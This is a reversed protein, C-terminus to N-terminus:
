GEIAAMAEAKRAAITEARKAVMAAKEEETKAAMTASFKVAIEAKEADTRRAHVESLKAAIEAKEADTRRAHAEKVSISKEERRRERVSADGDLKTVWKVIAAVRFKNGEPFAENFARTLAADSARLSEDVPARGPALLVSPHPM